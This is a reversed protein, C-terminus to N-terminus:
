PRPAPSQPQVKSARRHRWYFFLCVFASLLLFELVAESAGASVAGLGGTVTVDSVVRYITFVLLVTIVLSARKTPSSM